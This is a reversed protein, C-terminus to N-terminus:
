GLVRWKGKKQFIIGKRREVKDKPHFQIVANANDRIIKNGIKRGVVRGRHLIVYFGDATCIMNGPYRHVTFVEWGNEISSYIIYRDPYFHIKYDESRIYSLWEFQSIRFSVLRVTKNLFYAERRSVLLAASVCLLFIFSYLLITKLKYNM